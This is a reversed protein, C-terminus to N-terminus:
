YRQPHQWKLISKDFSSQKPSWAGLAGHSQEKSSQEFNIRAERAVGTVGASGALFDPLM